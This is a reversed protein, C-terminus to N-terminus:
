YLEGFCFYQSLLAYLIGFPTGAFLLYLFDEKNEQLFKRLKSVKKEM